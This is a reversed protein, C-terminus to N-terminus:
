VRSDLEQKENISEFYFVYIIISLLNVIRYTNKCHYKMDCYNALKIKNYIKIGLLKM